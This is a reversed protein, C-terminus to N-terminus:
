TRSKFVRFLYYLFPLIICSGWLLALALVRMTEYPASAADLTISQANAIYVANPYNVIAFSMVILLVQFGATIRSIAIKGKRLSSWLVPLSFTALVLGAISFPHSLYKQILDIETFLESCLFVFGGAAITVFSFVFAKRIFYKKLNEDDTEGTIYVSALYVFICCTFIGVSLAFPEFWSSVYVDFFSGETKIKGNFLAGLVAGLFLSTFLSSYKFAITYYYQSRDKIADYHRFTFAAGRVVIGILLLTIPIHLYISVSSYLVPFGMFLIVVAIILWMHNAEWIPGIARNVVEVQKESRSSFLELIGAGFDAGGLLVYMVISLFLFAVVVEYM